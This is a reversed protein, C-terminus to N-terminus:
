EQKNKWQLYDEKMCHGCPRYGSTIAESLGSFFVRNGVKMKKGSLCKLTGYIKLRKNGSFTIAGESILKWLQRSRTFDQSGLDKHAIM